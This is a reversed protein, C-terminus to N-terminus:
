LGSTDIVIRRLFVPGLLNDSFRVYSPWFTPSDVRQLAAKPLWLDWEEPPHGEQRMWEGIPEPPLAQLARMADSLSELTPTTLPTTSATSTFNM